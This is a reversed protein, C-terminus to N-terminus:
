HIGLRPAALAQRAAVLFREAETRPTVYVSFAPVARKTRRSTYVEVRKTAPNYDLEHITDFGAYLFQNRVLGEFYFLVRENTVVLAGVGAEVGAVAAHVTEEAALKAPLRRLEKVAGSINRADSIAAAVDPRLEEVVPPEDAGADPEPQGAAAPTRTWFTWQRGDNHRLLAQNLPDPYWGSPLQTMPATPDFAPETSSNM